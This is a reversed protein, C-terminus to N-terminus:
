LSLDNDISGKCEVSFGRIPTGETSHPAKRPPPNGRYHTKVKTPEQSFLSFFCGFFDLVFIKKRGGM